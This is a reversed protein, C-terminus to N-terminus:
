SGVKLSALIHIISYGTADFELKSSSNYASNHGLKICEALDYLSNDGEIALVVQSMKAMCRTHNYDQPLCSDVILDFKGSDVARALLPRDVDMSLEILEFGAKLDAGM